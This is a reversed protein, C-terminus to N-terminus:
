VGNSNLDLPVAIGEPERSAAEEERELRKRETKDEKELAKRELRVRREERWQPGWRVEVWLLPSTVFIVGAIFTFCWGRGM